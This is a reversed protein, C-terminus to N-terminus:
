HITVMRSFFILLIERLYRFISLKSPLPTDEKVKRAILPVPTYLRMTENIVNEMYKLNKFDQMNANELTEGIVNIIENYCKEQM